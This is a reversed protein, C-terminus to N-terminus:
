YEAREWRDRLELALQTTDISLGAAIFPAAARVIDRNLIPWPDPHFRPDIAQPVDIVRIRGDWVLLNYPSLDGHILDAGLMLEIDYLLWNWADQVDLGELGADQLRPAPGDDDGLYTMVIASATSLILAPVSVGSAHMRSLREAERAHWMGHAVERGFRSRNKLARAARDDQVETGDLYRHTGRFSAHERFVKVAVLREDTLRPNARCAYVTAEKGSKLREIIQDISGEEILSRIGDPITQM